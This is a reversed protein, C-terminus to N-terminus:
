LCICSLVTCLHKIHVFGFNLPNKSNEDLIVFYVLNLGFVGFIEV